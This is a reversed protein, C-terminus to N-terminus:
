KQLSHYINELKAMHNDISYKKVSEFAGQELKKLEPINLILNELIDKLENVNGAEFLFGNRGEEILEPIGGIKSGIVPTASRLSEYIVMPSNDYWISPVVTLNMKQYFDTLEDGNIFGYFTIRKDDSSIRKLEEEDGGKGLIHLRVKKNKLEKFANILIHVGKHKSLAGIYLIDINQYSKEKKENMLQIGLPLKITRTGNFLGSMKLQEIVFNSPATVIDPKANVLYRQIKNYQTCILYPDTCIEHHRDLLNAKICILSYDHATFVLPLNLSKVASFVSLSIGKFNHINVIDPMEKKLINKVTLYSHPNWLDILHWIPKILAPQKQHNYFTYLNWPNIKYIKVGKIEEVTSRGETQTTIVTVHHGRKVLENAVNEVVIEAGGIVSPPYLNSVLCIKM